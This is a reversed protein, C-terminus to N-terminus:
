LIFPMVLFSALCGMMVLRDAGDLTHIFRVATHIQLHRTQM